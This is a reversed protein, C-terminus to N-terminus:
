KEERSASMWVSTTGTETNTNRVRVAFHWGPDQLATMKRNRIATDLGIRAEDDILMWQGEKEKLDRVIQPWDYKGPRGPRAPPPPSERWETM